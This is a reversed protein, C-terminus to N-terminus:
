KSETRETTRNAALVNRARDTLEIFAARVGNPYDSVPEAFGVHATAPGRLTELALDIGKADIREARASTADAHGGFAQAIALLEDLHNTNIHELVDVHPGHSM